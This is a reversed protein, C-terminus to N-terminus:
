AFLWATNGPTAAFEARFPRWGVQAVQRGDLLIVAVSGQWEGLGVRVRKSGAPLSLETQYTVADRM